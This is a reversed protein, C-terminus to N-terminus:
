YGAAADVQGVLPEGAVLREVNTRIRAALLPVVMEIAQPAHVLGQFEPHGLAGRLEFFEVLRQDFLARSKRDARVGGTQPKPVQVDLAVDQCPVLAHKSEIAM